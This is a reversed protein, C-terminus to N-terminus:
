IKMGLFLKPWMEITTGFMELTYPAALGFASKLREPMFGWGGVIFDTKIGAYVGFGRRQGFGFSARLSGFGPPASEILSQWNMSSGWPALLQRFTTWDAADLPLEGCLEIDATMFLLRFRHGLGFGASLEDATRFLHDAQQGAFFAAYLVPTGSRITAYATNTAFQYDVSVDNIGNGIINVLGLAVGDLKDAVNVLGIMAGRASGAVNVIGAAQVGQVTDAVNLIGAAQLGNVSGAINFVGAGQMFSVAGDAINFVGAGQAGNVAGNAINFVGAGQLGNVDGSAINFLGAGQLGNVNGLAINFLGSGQAGHVTGVLSGISGAALSTDHIGWPLAIGPVFSLVVPSYPRAKAATITRQSQHRTTTITVTGGPTRITTSSAPQASSAQSTTTSQSYKDRAQQLVFDELFSGSQEQAGLRMAAGFAVALVICVFHKM